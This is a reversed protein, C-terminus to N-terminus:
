AGDVILPQLILCDFTGAGLTGTARTASVARGYLINGSSTLTLAMASTIYILVGLTVNALTFRYIGEIRFVLDEGVLATNEAVGNMSSIRYPLGSTKTAGAAVLSIAEGRKVFNQAM